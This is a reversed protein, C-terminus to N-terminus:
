NRSYCYINSGIPTGGILINTYSVGPSIYIRAGIKSQTDTNTTTTPAVTTPTTITTANNTTQTNNTTASTTLQYPAHRLSQQQLNYM